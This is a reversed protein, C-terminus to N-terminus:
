FNASRWENPTNINGIISPDQTPLRMLHDSKRIQMDLRADESSLDVKTIDDCFQHALYIPHGGREEFEPIVVQVYPNILATEIITRVTAPKVGVVDIPSLIIGGETLPILEKLGAQISSFQGLEWNLNEIWHIDSKPHADMIARSDAGVVVGIDNIGSEKMIYIQKELLTRGDNTRLLAKPEGMRTSAGASLILGTINNKSTGSAM